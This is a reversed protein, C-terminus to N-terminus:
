PITNVYIFDYFLPHFRKRRRNKRRRIEIDQPPNKCLGCPIAPAFFDRFFKAFLAQCPLFHTISYVLVGPPATLDAGHAQPHPKRMRFKKFFSQFFDQCLPKSTTLYSLRRSLSVASRLVGETMSFQVVFRFFFCSSSVFNHSIEFLEKVFGLLFSIRVLLRNSSCFSD